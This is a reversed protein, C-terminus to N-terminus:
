KHEKQEDENRRDTKNESLLEAKEQERKKRPVSTKLFFRIMQEQLEKSLTIKEDEKMEM